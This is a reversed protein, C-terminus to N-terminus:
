LWWWPWGIDCWGPPGGLPGKGGGTDDDQLKASGPYRYPLPKIGTDFSPTPVSVGGVVGGM